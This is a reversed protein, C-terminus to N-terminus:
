SDSPCTDRPLLNLPTFLEGIGYSPIGKSNGLLDACISRTAIDPLSFIRHNSHTLNYPLMLGHGGAQM